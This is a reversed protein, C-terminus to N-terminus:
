YSCSSPKVVSRCALLSFPWRYLFAVIEIVYLNRDLQSRNIAFYSPLTSVHCHCSGFNWLALADCLFDNWNRVSFSAVMLIVIFCGRVVAVIDWINRQLTNVHLGIGGERLSSQHLMCLSLNEFARSSQFGVCRQNPCLALFVVDVLSM